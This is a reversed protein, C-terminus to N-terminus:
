AALYALKELDAVLAAPTPRQAMEDRLEAAASRYGPDALLERASAGIEAPTVTQGNHVIGLGASAVRRAHATQEPTFPLGLHPTGECVATMGCGAGGHYVVLDCEPLLLKLPTYGLLTANAPLPGVQEVADPHCAVLVEIDLGALGELITPVLFSRPGLLGSLSNGWIVCVRPQEARGLGIDTSPGPGNYPLYRVPLRLAKSPAAIRPPCPDVVYRILEASMPGVGHREFDRNHDVPVLNVGAEGEDTGIAGWLHCVAPIGLVQAALLGELNLVDHVVLDPRWDRAFEIVADMSASVGAVNRDRNERKYRPFDFDKFSEVVKGTVPHLPMGLPTGGAQQAAFFYFIRGREMMDPGGQVPVPVLGARSVPREQSPHCAVRVEHGAAQLAWGLPVMPFYHASYDSVAFLVRM